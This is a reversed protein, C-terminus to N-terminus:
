ANSFASLGNWATSWRGEGNQYGATGRGRASGRNYSGTPVTTLSPDLTKALGYGGVEIALTTHWLEDYCDGRASTTWVLAVVTAILLLIGGSV